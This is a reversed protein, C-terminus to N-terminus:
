LKSKGNKKLFSIIEKTEEPYIKIFHSRMKASIMRGTEHNSFVIAASEKEPMHCDICNQKLVSQQVNAITCFTNKKDPSHCVMCRQSFTVLQNAENKHPDHCSNCTLQSQTFCKSLTLLGYQNGHVDLNKVDEVVTSFSYFKKLDDGPRFSFSPQLNNM